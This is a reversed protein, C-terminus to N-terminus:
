AKVEYAAVYGHATYVASVEAAALAAARGECVLLRRRGEGTPTEVRRATISGRIVIRERTVTVPGEVRQREEERLMRAHGLERKGATVIYTSGYIVVWGTLTSTVIVAREMGAANGTTTLQILTVCATLAALVLIWLALRWANVRRELRALDGDSYLEIIQREM